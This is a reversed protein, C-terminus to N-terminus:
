PDFFNMGGSSSPLGESPRLVSIGRELLWMRAWLMALLCSKISFFLSYVYLEPINKCGDGGAKCYLQM